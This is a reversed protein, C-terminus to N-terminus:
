FLVEMLYEEQGCDCIETRCFYGGDEIGACAEQVFPVEKGDVLVRDPQRASVFGFTGAESVGVIMRTGAKRVFSICGSCILKELVGVPVFDEAPLLIFLAADNKELAFCFVGDGALRAARQARQDYVIWDRGTLGPVDLLGITGSCPKDERSMSFAAVVYNDRYRNFLKFARGSEVPNEFLCDKTPMGVDSCRIVSGDGKILPRIYAPDTKGVPDSTYVPGGSVARLVANQRNEAHSSWFMDWDGWFFQGQLLSNYGNQVAHELFGHEAKPMFDDSSRSIASNPRNWMDEPAMGMCNIIQNNFHLAASANLGSQIARGAKAYEKLGEYFLSISSQGDVKVFDIGCENRLYEHWASYFQFAKGKEAAVIRRGDPLCCSGAELLKAARSEEELGNWYGMVAHWVGVQLIGYDEKMRETCGSLGNPFKDPAADLGRLKLTEYDADLWGDDILVWKVPVKKERFEELKDFIGQQSVQHYFADWSCWGLKEFMPPYVRNERLMEERGTLSLAYKVAEHCCAYPDTGGACVLSLDEAEKKNSCNSAMTIELGDRCGAIDTRCERGCVALVALYEGQGEALLLQTRPPIQEYLAPFEPRLWWEKHQYVAMLREAGTMRVYFRIGKKADLYTQACFYPEQQKLKGKVWVAQLNKKEQVALRVGPQLGEEKIEEPFELRLKKQSLMM